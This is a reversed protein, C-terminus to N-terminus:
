MIFLTYKGIRKHTDINKKIADYKVFCDSIGPENNDIESDTKLFKLIGEMNLKIGQDCLFQIIYVYIVRSVNVFNIYEKDVERLENKSLHMKMKQILSLVVDSKLVSFNNLM